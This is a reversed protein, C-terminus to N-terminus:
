RCTGVDSAGCKEEVVRTRAGRNDIRYGRAIHEAVTNTDAHGVQKWGSRKHAQVKFPHLTPEAVVPKTM